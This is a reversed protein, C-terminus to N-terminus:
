KGTLATLIRAIDRKVNRLKHSQKQQGMRLKVALEHAETRLDGLMKRLEEESNTKLDKFKV